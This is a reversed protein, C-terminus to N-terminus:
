EFNPAYRTKTSTPCASVQFRHWSLQSETTLLAGLLPSHQHNHIWNSGLFEHVQPLTITQYLHGNQCERNCHIRIRSNSFSGRETPTEYESNRSGTTKQSGLPDKRTHSPGARRLIIISPNRHGQLDHQFKPCTCINFVHECLVCKRMAAPLVYPQHEVPSETNLM